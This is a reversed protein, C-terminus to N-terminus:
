GYSDGIRLLTLIKDYVELPPNGSLTITFEGERFDLMGDERTREYVWRYRGDAFRELHIQPKGIELRTELLSHFESPRYRIDPKTKSVALEEITERLYGCLDEPQFNSQRLKKPEGTERDKIVKKSVETFVFIGKDMIDAANYGLTRAMRVATHYMKMTSIGVFLNHSIERLYDDAFEFPEGNSDCEFQYLRNELIMHIAYAFENRSKHMTEMSTCARNYFLEYGLRNNFQPDLEFDYESINIIDQM